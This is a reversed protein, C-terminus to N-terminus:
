RELIQARRGGSLKTTNTDLDAGLVAKDFHDRGNILRRRSFCPKAGAVEDSFYVAFGCAAQGGGFRDFEHTAYRAGLDLQFHEAFIIAARLGVCQRALLDLNLADFGLQDLRANGENAHAHKVLRRHGVHGFHQSLLVRM